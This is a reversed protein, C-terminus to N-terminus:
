RNPHAVAAPSPIVCARHGILNGSRSRFRLAHRRNQEVRNNARAWWLMLGFGVLGLLMPHPEPINCLVLPEMGFQVNGAPITFLWVDATFRGEFRWTAGEWTFGDYARILVPVEQGDYLAGPVTVSLPNLYGVSAGTRFSTTAFATANWPELATGPPASYIDVHFDSGRVSSTGPPDTCLVFRADTHPPIRNNVVFQGQGLAVATTALYLLVTNM